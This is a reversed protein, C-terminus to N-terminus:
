ADPILKGPNLVGQPDLVGKVARVVEVGLPGVEDVMWDRHDIGVAHHHTLTAGSQIIVDTAMRKAVLWQEEAREDERAALVTFYLSAGTPYVHSVHALVLPQTTGRSLSYRLAGRVAEHLGTLDSWSTATELTEVLAGADLLDDRLYPGHYRGRRWAAGVASGLRLGGNARLVAGAARRRDEVSGETGEWGTVLLCGGARGRVALLGRLLKTKAGGALALNARTEEPDSLRSIDPALGAQALRRLATVGDAFTKFSWGEDTVVQPKRRVRLRMGTIVGLTGESGVMLGRLDPGAASAPGRGVQLTGAPTAVRVALVLDDFRGYGSSAQGASRTAAYGGLTAHEWSQPHHGLTLGHGALIEEVEPGRLGPEAWVTLSETDVESLADMRRVDLSVVARYGEGVPAVGGVVSTGGGFPVVALRFKSCAALVALVEHHNGPTVVVDPVSVTGSRFRVLDLYSKGGAHRLRAERSEDLNDAGVAEALATWALDPVAPVPLAVAPAAPPLADPDRTDDPLGIRHALWSRAAAPLGTRRAPDGWGTAVMDRVPPTNEDVTM